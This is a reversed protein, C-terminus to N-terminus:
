SIIVVISVVLESFLAQSTKSIIIDLEGTRKFSLDVSEILVLVLLLVYPYTYENPKVM